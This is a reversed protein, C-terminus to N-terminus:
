DGRLMTLRLLNLAQKAARQKHISPDGLMPASRVIVDDDTALAFVFRASQKTARDFHPMESVALAYNAQTLKKCGVAMAEVVPATTPENEALLAPSIALMREAAAVTHPVVGGHYCAESGAVDNLWHAIRGGTGWEATALTKGREILLRCVADALEDDGEGFVLDGLCDYITAATPEMSRLCEEANEGQATIRLTITAGSVTIGVSPQRGRRILDPLKEELHSEGLGFCKIRRHRIVRAAGATASIEGAVTENWMKHMEAPVGPLAFVRCFGGDGRPLRIDIGPATGSPNAISRSGEPFMAQVRNREPMDRGFLAFLNRIYELIAEDLVLPVDAAKALAERTLDDATPGLGGTAVVMDVRDAAQRFVRVNAEIDDAVTTHYAVRVGLEGLRESLWQTNTDLRQGSTLEDGISVVEAQM